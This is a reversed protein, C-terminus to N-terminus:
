RRANNNRYGSREQNQNRDTESRLNFNPKLPQKLTPKLFM